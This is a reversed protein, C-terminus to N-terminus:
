GHSCPLGVWAPSVGSMLDIDESFRSIAGYVKSLSTGGKFVM